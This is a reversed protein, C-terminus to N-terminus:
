GDICSLSTARVVSGSPGAQVEGVVSVHRGNALGQAGCGPRPSVGDADVATGRVKFSADGVYDTIPGELRVQGADGDQGPRRLKVHAAVFRGDDAHRGRVHVYKGDALTQNAPTVQAAGYDVTVGALDFTKATADLRSVTGGLRSQGDSGAPSERVIVRIGAATLQGGAPAQNAWVIVRQGNKLLPASPLVPAAAYNVTLGGLTFTFATSGPALGQVIGSIRLSAPPADLLKIRTAQVDYRSAGSNWRPVGHVEVPQGASLGALGGVGDFVTVPGADASSNVVVTQGLVVLRQAVGADVSDVPGAVAADLRVAQLRLASGDVTFAAEAFQGLAPTTATLQGWTLETLPTVGDDQYVEGDLILSGFGTVTGSGSSVSMPQGTGGSGIGGSGGCAALTALLVALASVLLKHFLSSKM